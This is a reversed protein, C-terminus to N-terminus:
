NVQAARAKEYLAAPVTIDVVEEGRHQRRTIGTRPMKYGNTGCSQLICRYVVHLLAHVRILDDSTYSAYADEVAKILDAMTPNNVRLEDSRSQLAHFFCLDLKNLDPSQSPQTIIEIIPGQNNEQNVPISGAENLHESKNKGVHGTTGDQQIVM